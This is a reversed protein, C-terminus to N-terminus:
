KQFLLSIMLKGVNKITDKELKKIYDRQQLCLLTVKDLKKQLRQCDSVKESHYFLQEELGSKEQKLYEIAVEQKDIVKRLSPCYICHWDPQPSSCWPCVPPSLDSM